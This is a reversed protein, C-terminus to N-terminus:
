NEQGNSYPILEFISEKSSAVQYKIVITLVTYKERIIQEIEERPLFVGDFVFQGDARQNKEVQKSLEEDSLGRFEVKEVQCNFRFEDNLIFATGGIIRSKFESLPECTDIFEKKLQENEIYLPLVSKADKTIYQPNKSLVERIKTEFQDDNYLVTKQTATEVAALVSNTSYDLISKEFNVAEPFKEFLISSYRETSNIALEPDFGWEGKIATEIADYIKEAFATQDVKAAQESKNKLEEYKIENVIEFLKHDREEGMQFFVFHKTEKSYFAVIKRMEDTPVFVKDENICKDGFDKLHSKINPYKRIISSFDISYAQRINLLNTLYWRSLYSKGWIIFKAGNGFLYYELVDSNRMALSIFSDYNVKFSNAAESFLRKWSSIKTRHEIMNGEDIFSNIKDRIKSPVDPDSCSLYYLYVSLVAFVDLAPSDEETLCYASNSLQHRIAKIVSFDGEKATGAVMIILIDSILNREMEREPSAFSLCQFLGSMKDFFTDQLSPLEHTCFLVRTLLYKQNSVETYIEDSIDIRRLMVDFVNELLSSGIIRQDNESYKRKIDFALDQQFELLKLIVYRNYEQDGADSFFEYVEKLNKTYLLYRVADKLDKSAETQSLYCSILKEKLIRILANERKSMIPVEMYVVQVLFFLSAILVGIAAITLGLMYCMLNLTCLVISIVIVKLVSYYKSVRLAYLKTVKVGFIEENQLSIAIGVISVVLSVLATIIQSSVGVINEYGNPWCIIHYVRDAISFALSGIILVIRICRYWSFLCNGPISIKKEKKNKM